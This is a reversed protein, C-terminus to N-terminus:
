VCFRVTHRVSVSGCRTTLFLHVTFVKHIVALGQALMEKRVPARCWQVLPPAQNSVTSMLTETLAAPMFDVSSYNKTPLPRMDEARLDPDSFFYLGSDM